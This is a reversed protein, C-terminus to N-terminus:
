TSPVTNGPPQESLAPLDNTHKHSSLKVAMQKRGSETFIKGRVALARPPDRSEMEPGHKSSNEASCHSKPSPRVEFATIAFESCAYQGMGISFLNPDMRSLTLPLLLPVRM